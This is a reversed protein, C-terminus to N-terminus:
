PKFVVHHQKLVCQVNSPTVMQYHPSPAETSSFCMILSSYQHKHTFHLLYLYLFYTHQYYYQLFTSKPRIIATCYFVSFTQMVISPCGVLVLRM